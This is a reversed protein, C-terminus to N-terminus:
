KSWFGVVIKQLHHWQLRVAAAADASVAAAAAAKAPLQEVAASAPAGAAPAATTAAVVAAAAVLRQGPVSQVPLRSATRCAALHEDAAVRRAALRVDATLMRAAPPDPAPAHAAAQQTGPRRRGPSSAPGAAAAAAGAHAVAVQVLGAAAAAEVAAVAGAAAAADGDAVPGLPAAAVTVVDLVPPHQTHMVSENDHHQMSRLLGKTHTESCHWGICCATATIMPGAPAMGAAATTAAAPAAAAPAAASVPSAAYHMMCSYVEQVASRCVALGRGDQTWLVLSSDGANYVYGDAEKPHGLQGATHGQLKISSAPLWAHSAPMGAAPRQAWRGQPRHTRERRGAPQWHAVEAAAAAPACPM